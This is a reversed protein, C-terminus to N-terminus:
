YGCNLFTKQRETLANRIVITVKCQSCSVVCSFDQLNISYNSEMLTFEAACRPCLDCSDRGAISLTFCNLLFM